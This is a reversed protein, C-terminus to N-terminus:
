SGFGLKQELEHLTLFKGKARNKRAQELERKEASTPKFTNKSKMKKQWSWFDDYINKPVAVLEKNKETGKHVTITTM